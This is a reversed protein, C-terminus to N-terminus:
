FLRHTFIRLNESVIKHETIDHCSGIYGAIGGDSRSYPRGSYITWRYQGDYRCSRCELEVAQHAKVALQYNQLCRERDEPHISEAWGDGAATQIDRGTFVLWARYM